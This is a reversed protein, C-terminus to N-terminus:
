PAQIEGTLYPTVQGILVVRDGELRCHVSGGRASLQRAFFTAKNLRQAWLPVLACHASGTVPDEDIGENPAFFRSVFDCDDGAATVMVPEGLAALARFDPQLREVEQQNGLLAICCQARFSEQIAVGLASALDRPAECAVVPIAPFDMIISEGEQKVTLPGSATNFRITERDYGLYHFLVFATALTGHGCLPVECAPTFWRLHYGDERPVFFATESLNNELAIQQLIVDDPWETLPVVAAPNGSFTRDTFADVQYIPYSPM